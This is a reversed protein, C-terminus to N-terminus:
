YKKSMKFKCCYVSKVKKRQTIDQILGLMHYHKGIKIQKGSAWIWRISKDNARYIRCQFEWPNHHTLGTQFIEDVFRVDDPHVHKLFLEYTWMPLLSTYGFIQDHLASREAVGTKLNLDWYGQQAVSLSFELQKRKTQTRENARRMVEAISSILIGNFVFFTMVLWDSPVAIFPDTVLLWWLFSIILCTLTTALIGAFFGGIVAAIIVAPYYTLYANYSGLMHLPWIRIISSLIVLILTAIYANRKSIYYREQNWWSNM